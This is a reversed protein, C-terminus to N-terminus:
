IDYSHNGEFSHYRQTKLSYFLLNDDAPDFIPFCITNAMSKPKAVDGFSSALSLYVMKDGLDKVREWKMEPELLRFVNVTESDHIMFVAYLANQEDGNIKLLFYRRIQSRLKRHELSKPYVIWVGREIDLTAVEGRIGVFYLLGHHLVPASNSVLFEYESKYTVSEWEDEDGYRLIDVVAGDSGIPTSVGIIFCDRCTPPHFFPFSTCGYKCYSNLEVIPKAYGIFPNFFFLSNDEWCMLLWGYKSCMIEANESEPFSRYFYSKYQFFGWLLKKRSYHIYCPANFPYPSRAAAANWSQCVLRFNYRDRDFLKSIILDLIGEPPYAWEAM